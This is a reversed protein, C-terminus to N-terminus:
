REGSKPHTSNRLLELHQMTSLSLKVCERNATFSFALSRSHYVVNQMFESYKIVAALAALCYYKEKLEFFVQNFEPHCLRHLCDSCLM